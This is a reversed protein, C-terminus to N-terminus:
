INRCACLDTHHILVLVMFVLATSISIDTYPVHYSVGSIIGYVSDSAVKTASWLPDPDVYLFM